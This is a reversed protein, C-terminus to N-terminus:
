EKVMGIIINMLDQGYVPYRYVSGTDDKVVFSGNTVGVFYETKQKGDRRLSIGNDFPSISVIKKLSFSKPHKTGSFILRKNTLFLNGRDIEKIEEHSESTAGFVGLGFSIGKAVRPGGHGGLTVRVSRPEKLIVSDLSLFAVEGRKLIVHPANEVVPEARDTEIANLWVALDPNIGFSDLDEGYALNRIHRVSLKTRGFQQWFPHTKDPMDWLTYSEGSTKAFDAACNDCVFHEGKQLGFAKKKRESILKGTKCVPCKDSWPIVSVLQSQVSVLEETLPNGCNSCFKGEDEFGCQSCRM